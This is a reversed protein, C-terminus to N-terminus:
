NQTARSRRGGVGALLRHWVAAGGRRRAAARAAGGNRRSGVAAVAPGDIPFAKLPEKVHLVLLLM